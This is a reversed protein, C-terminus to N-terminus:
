LIEEKKVEAWEGPKLDRLKAKSIQVRILRLTPYGIAATMKRVQRNKGECIKIELWSTPISARYRIPPNRDVVLPPDIKKVECPRTKYKKGKHSLVIDGKMLVSIDQNTPINEVQVWYTKVKEFKPNTLKNIFNGDDSLVLLGESDKDLRGAAYVNKPIGFDSLTDKDGSFQCNVNFPKYFLIYKM